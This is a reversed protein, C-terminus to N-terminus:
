SGSETDYKKARRLMKRTRSEEIKQEMRRKVRQSNQNILAYSYRVNKGLIDSSNRLNTRVKMSNTTVKTLLNIEKGIVWTRKERIADLFAARDERCAAYTVARGMQFLNHGDSGGTLGVDLNFGLVTSELNWKHINAANIVEIADVMNLLSEQRSTSFVPNCVGTYAACYPHPFVLVTNYKRACSIISEMTMATSSMVGKGLYPHLESYFFDTLDRASYFYALLHAGEKSTIEIGPISFIDKHRDIELAGRIDNHDTVAVGIGLKRVRDAIADIDNFGDSYRSHVHLDVVAYQKILQTLPPRNFIVRHHNEMDFVYDDKRGFQFFMTCKALEFRQLPFRINTAAVDASM